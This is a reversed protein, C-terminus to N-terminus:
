TMLALEVTIKKGLVWSLLNKLSLITKLIIIKIICYTLCKKFYIQIKFENSNSTRFKFPACQLITNNNNSILKLFIPVAATAVSASTVPM